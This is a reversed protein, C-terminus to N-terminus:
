IHAKEGPPTRRSFIFNIFAIWFIGACWGAIVEEPTHAGVILRSVGILIIIAVTFVIILLRAKINAIKRASYISISSYLVISSMAHGSPFGLDDNLFLNFIDEPRNANLAYKLVFLLIITGAITIFFERFIKKEKSFFLFFLVFVVILIFVTPGGLASINKNIYVFWEPGYTNLWRGTNGITEKMFHHYAFENGNKSLMYMLIFLVASVIPVFLAKFSHLSKITM